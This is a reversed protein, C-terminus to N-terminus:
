KMVSIHRTRLSTFRDILTTFTTNSYLSQDRRRIQVAEERWKPTKQMNKRIIPIKRFILSLFCIRYFGCTTCAACSATKNQWRRSPLLWLSISFDKYGDSDSLDFGRAWRRPAPIKGAFAPREKQHARGCAPGPCDLAEPSTLLIEARAPM